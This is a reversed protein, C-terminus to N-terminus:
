EREKLGKLTDILGDIADDPLIFILKNIKRDRIVESETSYRYDSEDVLLTVEHVKLYENDHKVYLVNARVSILQNM